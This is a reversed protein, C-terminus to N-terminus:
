TLAPNPQSEVAMIPGERLMKYYLFPNYSFSILVSVVGLLILVSVVGLLIM